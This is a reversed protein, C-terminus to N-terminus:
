RRDLAVRRRSRRLRSARRPQGAVREAAQRLGERTDAPVLGGFCEVLYRLRKADKRLDHLDEAPSDAGIRRGNTIVTDDAASLRKAILPGIPHDARAAGITSHPSACDDLLDNWEAVLRESRQSRMAIALAHHARACHRRMLEVVPQLGSIVEAALEAVYGDWELLYVDLDRAPGTLAALWGFEARFRQRVPEPLVGKSIGLMSRTRRLAVRLEHLFESDVDDITGQWNAAISRALNVFVEAFAAIASVDGELAITPSSNFGALDVGREVAILTVLDGDLRTFGLQELRGVVTTVHKHQAPLPRLVLTWPVASVAHHLSGTLVLGEHGDRLALDASHDTFSVQALLARMELLPAIRARLPGRPVDDARHPLMAVPASAPVTGSGYLVLSLDHSRHAELRLGASHLRGDFSDLVMRESSREAAIEFGAARVVETAQQVGLGRHTFTISEM